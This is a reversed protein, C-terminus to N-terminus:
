YQTQASKIVITLHLETIQHDTFTHEEEYADAGLCTARVTHQGSLVNWSEEDEKEVEGLKVSDFYITVQYECKNVVKLIADGSIDPEITKNDACSCLFLLPLLYLVAISKKM